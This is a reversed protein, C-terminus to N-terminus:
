SRKLKGDQSSRRVNLTELLNSGDKHGATVAQQFRDKLNERRKKAM